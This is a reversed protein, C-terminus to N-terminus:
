CERLMVSRRSNTLHLRDQFDGPAAPTTETTAPLLCQGDVRGAEHHRCPKITRRKHEDRIKQVFPLLRSAVERCPVDGRMPPRTIPSNRRRLARAAAKDHYTVVLRAVSSTVTPDSFKSVYELWGQSVACFSFTESRYVITSRPGDDRVEPVM